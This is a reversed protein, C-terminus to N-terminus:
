IGKVITQTENPPPLESPYSVSAPASKKMKDETWMDYILCALAYADRKLLEEFIQDADNAM